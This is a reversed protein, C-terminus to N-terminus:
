INNVEFKNIIEEEINFSRNIGNLLIKMELILNKMELYEM